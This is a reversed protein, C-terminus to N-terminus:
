VLKLKVAVDSANYGKALKIFAKKENAPANITRVAAVKVNFMKEFEDAIEKKTARYDVIYTIVNSKDVSGVAKETALPYKLAIM